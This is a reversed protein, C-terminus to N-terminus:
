IDPHYTSIEVQFFLDSKLSGKPLLGVSDYENKYFQSLFEPSGGFYRMGLRTQFPSFYQIAAVYEQFTSVDQACVWNAQGNSGLPMSVMRDIQTGFAPCSFQCSKQAQTRWSEVM